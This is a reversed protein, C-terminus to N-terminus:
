KLFNKNKSDISYPHSPDIKISEVFSLVASFSERAFKLTLPYSTMSAAFSSSSFIHGPTTEHASITAIAALSETKKTYIYSWIKLSFERRRRRRRKSHNLYQFNSCAPPGDYSMCFPLFSPLLDLASSVNLRGGGV